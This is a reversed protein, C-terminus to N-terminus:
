HTTISYSSTRPEIFSSGFPLVKDDRIVWSIRMLQTCYYFEGHSTTEQIGKYIIYTGPMGPSWALSATSPVMCRIIAFIHKHDIPVSGIFVNNLPRIYYKSAVHVPAVVTAERSGCSTSTSWTSWRYEM